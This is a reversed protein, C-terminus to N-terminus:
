ISNPLTGVFDLVAAVAEDWNQKETRGSAKRPKFGHDGDELWHFHVSAALPYGRRYQHGSVDRSIRKWTPSAHHYMAEIGQPPSLNDDRGWAFIVPCRVEPAHNVPDVYAAMAALRRVDDPNDPRDSKWM